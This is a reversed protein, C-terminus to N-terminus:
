FVDLLNEPKQGLRRRTSHVPLWVDRQHTKLIFCTFVGPTMVKVQINWSSSVPSGYVPEATCSVNQDNDEAAVRNLFIFIFVVLLDLPYGQPGPGGHGWSTELIM